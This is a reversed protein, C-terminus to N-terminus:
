FMWRTTRSSSSIFLSVIFIHLSYSGYRIVILALRRHILSKSSLLFFFSSQLPHLSLARLSFSHSSIPALKSPRPNQPCQRSILVLVCGIFVPVSSSEVVICEKGEDMSCIKILRGPLDIWVIRLNDRCPSM